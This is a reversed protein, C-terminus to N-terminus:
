GHAKIFSVVRKVEHERIRTPLNVVRLAASEAKPCSGKKYGIKSFDVGKPDIIHHYWNGLLIGQKKAATRLRDPDDVEITYRLPVSGEPIPTLSINTGTRLATQYHVAITKRVTAYRDLKKLQGLLLYALAEPYKAPFGNPKGGVKETAFVPFSLLRLRQFLVLLLKGMGSTYLPLVLAFLIPHILQQAIWGMGPMPLSEHFRALTAAAEKHEGRIVAAGGWVSSLPKDRGFSFFAADGLTGLPMNHYRAGLAHACDEILILNHKRSLRRLSDMDAPVGFTHQVILAKTKATIRKEVSQPDINYSADIDAYVPRAGAWLVSNPVAVCTFAQVIVEDGSGITFSKLLAFLASRGANFFLVNERKGLYNEFWHTVATIYAGSRWRWPTVFMGIASVVDDGETNPSLSASIVRPIGM